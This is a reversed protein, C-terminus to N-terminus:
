RVSVGRVKRQSQKALVRVAVYRLADILHNFCDIPRGINNGQKDTDWIYNRLEKILNVSDATVNLRYQQLLDIGFQISDAGKMCPEVKFGYRNIEAISKPEACDAVIITRFDYKLAKLRNAIENNTLGADYCVENLYVEGDCVYLEVIATPDCNHVLVGNAFYEPNGEITLDYVTEFQTGLTQVDKIKRWCIPVRKEALERSTISTETFSREAGNACECSTTKKQRINGNTIADKQVFDSIYTPQSINKEAGKVCKQQQNCVNLRLWDVLRGIKKQIVIKESMLSLDKRAKQHTYKRTNKRLSRLLTKLQITSHTETKIIFSAGKRFKARTISMSPTICCNKIINAAKNGNTIFITRTNETRTDNLSKGTLNSLVCLNDAKTLQGYKKWKGNVNFKHEKTARFIISKQKIKLAKTITKQIGRCTNKLVKRYGNRTAVFDNETVESIPIEGRQTLIKTDASFCAFGFDIGVGKLQADTPLNDVIQWNSFVVGQVSGVEGLGYVKWWNAWYASKINQEAFLNAALPDYFARTRTKEIEAVITDALAENDNYTLQLYDSDPDNLLETHVWFENTPNYDLWITEKTRIALQTYTEFDVNNCENIYLVDRRPGRVKSQQDASFFEIFAGNGFTYVFNSKNWHDPNFRNTAQMIKIFDRMAGKRLHPITESVVSIEIKPSKAATDILIPLIGYTKGASTGGQIIRIRKKLKRLKDIATTYRFGDVSMKM